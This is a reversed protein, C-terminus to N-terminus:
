EKIYKRIIDPIYDHKYPRTSTGFQNKISIVNSDKFNLFLAKVFDYFYPKIRRTTTYLEKHLVWYSFRILDNSIKPELQKEIVPVREYKVLETTYKLLLQFDEESLINERQENKANMFDFISHIKEIDSKQTSDFSNEEVNAMEITSIQSEDLEFREMEPILLVDNIYNLIGRLPLMFYSHNNILYSNKNILTQLTNVQIRLYNETTSKTSNICCYYLNNKAKQFERYLKPFLLDKTLISKQIFEGLDNQEVYKIEISDGLDYSICDSYLFENKIVELINESDIIYEFYALPHLETSNM